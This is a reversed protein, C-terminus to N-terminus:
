AGGGGGRLFKPHCILISGDTRGDTVFRTDAMVLFVIKPIKDFKVSLYLLYSPTDCVFNLNGHGRDLDCDFTLPKDSLFQTDAM